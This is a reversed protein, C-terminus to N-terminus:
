SAPDLREKLPWVKTAFFLRIMRAHDERDTVAVLADQDRGKSTAVTGKGRTAPLDRIWAPQDKRESAHVMKKKIKNSPDRFAVFVKCYYSGRYGSRNARGFLVSVRELGAWARDNPTARPRVIISEADSNPVQVIFEWENARPFNRDVVKYSFVTGSVSHGGALAWPERREDTPGAVEVLQLQYRKRAPVPSDDCLAPGQQSLPRM